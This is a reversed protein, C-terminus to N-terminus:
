NDIKFFNPDDSLTVNQTYLHLISMKIKWGKIICLIPWRKISGQDNLSKYFYKYKLQFGYQLESRFGRESIFNPNHIFDCVNWLHLFLICISKLMSQYKLYYGRIQLMLNKTSCFNFYRKLFSLFSLVKSYTPTRRYFEM